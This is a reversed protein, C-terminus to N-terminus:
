VAVLSSVSHPFPLETSAKTAKFEHYPCNREGDKPDDAIEQLRFAWFAFGISCPEQVERQKHNNTDGDHVHQGVEGGRWESARPHGLYRGSGVVVSTSVEFGVMPAADEDSQNDHKVWNDQEQTKERLAERWVGM